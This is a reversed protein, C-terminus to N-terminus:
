QLEANAGVKNTLAECSRAGVQVCVLTVITKINAKIHTTWNATTDTISRSPTTRQIEIKDNHDGKRLTSPWTIAHCSTQSAIPSLCSM